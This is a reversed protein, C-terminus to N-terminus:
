SLNLRYRYKAFDGSLSQAINEIDSMNNTSGFQELQKAFNIVDGIVQDPIGMSYNKVTEVPMAKTRTKTYGMIKEVIEDAINFINEYADGLVQHEGLGFTQWHLEHLQIEFFFLKQKIVDLTLSGQGSLMEKPFLSKEM